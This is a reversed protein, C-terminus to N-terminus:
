PTLKYKHDDKIVTVKAANLRPYKKPPRYASLSALMVFSDVITKDAPTQNSSNGNNFCGSRCSVSGNPNRVATKIEANRSKESGKINSPITPGYAILSLIDFILLAPLIEPSISIYAIDVIALTKDASMVPKKRIGLMPNPCSIDPIPITKNIVAEIPIAIM